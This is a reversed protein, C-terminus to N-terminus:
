IRDKTLRESRAKAGAKGLKSQKTFIQEKTLGKTRKKWSNRGM